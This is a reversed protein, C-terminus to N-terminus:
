RGVRPGWDPTGVGRTVEVSNNGEGNAVYLNGNKSYAVMRGDPSWSPDLNSAGDQTLRVVKGSNVDIKFIDFRNSSDRGAYVLWQGMNKGHNWDPSQNYNGAKTVRTVGGGSSSMRYIQPSGARDSVFALQGSASWSPSGDIAQDKTLRSKVNGSRDLTYIEANGDKSLALAITSGDPSMTGGLNLGPYQSVRKPSGGSSIWLDPNRKAYSTFLIEGGPAISPLVNLTKGDTVGAAREGNMEITQVNKSVTPNRRTRVFAIRSGFVGPEGDYNRVVENMFNNAAGYVDAGPYRGSVVPRDGKGIEHLVIRIQGGEQQVLIVADAGMASWDKAVFNKANILQGPISRRDLVEFGSTLKANKRLLDGLKGDAPVAVKLLRINGGVSQEQAHANASPAPSGAWLATLMLLSALVSTGFLTRKMVTREVFEALM